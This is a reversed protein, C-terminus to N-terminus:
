RPVLRGELLDAADRARELALELLAGRAAVDLQLLSRGLEAPEQPENAGPKVRRPGADGVVREEADLGNVAGLAAPEGGRRRASSRRRREREELAHEERV